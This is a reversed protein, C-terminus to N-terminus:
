PFLGRLLMAKNLRDVGAILAAIKMGCNYRDRITTVKKFANEMVDALKANVEKESWFFSQLGQVWEFYSVIVGGANCLVDPIIFAGKEELVKMASTTIPGNAGEAIIKARVRSVNKDTIVGDIACPMLVEVDLTLVDEPKISEAEPYGM